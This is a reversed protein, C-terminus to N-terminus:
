QVTSPEDRVEKRVLVLRYYGVLYGIVAGFSAGFCVGLSTGAVLLLTYTMM